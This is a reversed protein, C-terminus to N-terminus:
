VAEKRLRQIEALQSRLSNTDSQKPIPNIRKKTRNQEVEKEKQTNTDGTKEKRQAVRQRSIEVAACTWADLINQGLYYDGIAALGHDRLTQLTTPSFRFPAEALDKATYLASPTISIM